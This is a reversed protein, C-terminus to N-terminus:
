SYYNGCGGCYLRDNSYIITVFEDCKGCEASLSRAFRKKCSPCALVDTETFVSLPIYCFPCNTTNESTSM